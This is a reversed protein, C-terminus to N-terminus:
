LPWEAPTMSDWDLVLPGRPEPDFSVELPDAIGFGLNRIVGINEGTVNAVAQDIDKQSMTEELLALSQFFYFPSRTAYLWAIAKFLQV